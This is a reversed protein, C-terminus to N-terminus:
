RSVQICVRVSPLTSVRRIAQIPVNGFSASPRVRGEVIEFFLAPAPSLPACVRGQLFM